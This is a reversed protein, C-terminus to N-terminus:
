GDIVLSKRRQPRVTPGDMWKGSVLVTRPTSPPGQEDCELLKSLLDMAALGVQSPQEDIYAVHHHPHPGTLAVFGVDGPIKLGLSLLLDYDQASPLILAQPQYQIYWKLFDDPMLRQGVLPPIRDGAAIEDQYLLCAAKFHRIFLSSYGHTLLVVGVRRYNLHRLKNLALSLNEFQGPLACHLLPRTLTHTMSVVTFKQWDLTVHKMGNPLPPILVGRIGRAELIESLRQGTMGMEKQRLEELHYGLMSAREHAGALLQRIYPTREMQGARPWANLIGIVEPNLRMRACRAASRLRAVEPNPQYGLRRAVEQIKQRMALSIRPENRLALSVTARSVQVEKAITGLNVQTPMPAIPSISLQNGCSLRALGLFALRGLCQPDASWIGERMLKGGM